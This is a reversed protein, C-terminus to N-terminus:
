SKLPCSELVNYFMGGKKTESEMVEISEVTFILNIDENIEPIEEPELKRFEWESIRSLTVHPSFERSEPAFRISKLLLEQLDNKLKSLEKSKEGEAWIMKPPFKNKPGFIIKNLNISFVDNQNAVESVIKCVNAIEQDTLNGLFELTIHLNDKITQKSPIEPWKTQYKLLYKKIDEPLNIAIFVRHLKNM